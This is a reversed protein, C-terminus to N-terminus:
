SPAPFYRLLPKSGDPMTWAGSRASVQQWGLRQYLAIAADSGDLVELCPRGGPCPSGVHRILRGSWRTVIPRTCSPSHQFV